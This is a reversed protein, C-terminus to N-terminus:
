RFLERTDKHRGEAKEWEGGLVSTPGVGPVVEADSALATLGRNFDIAATLADM